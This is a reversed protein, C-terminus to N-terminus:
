HCHDFKEDRVSVHQHKINEKFVEFCQRLWQVELWLLSSEEYTGSVPTSTSPEPQDNCTSNGKSSQCGFEPSIEADDSQASIVM